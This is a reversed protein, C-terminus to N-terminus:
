MTRKPLVEGSTRGESWKNGAARHNEPEALVVSQPGRAGLLASHLVCMGAENGPLPCQTEGDLITNATLSEYVMKMLNINVQQSKSFRLPQPTINFAKETNISLKEKAHQYPPHSQNELTSGGKCVQFLNCNTM